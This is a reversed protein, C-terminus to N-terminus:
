KRKFDYSIGLQCGIGSQKHYRMINSNIQRQFTPKIDFIINDTLRVGIEVSSNLHFLFNSYTPIDERIFGYYNQYQNVLFGNNIGLSMGLRIKDRNLVYYGVNIPIELSSGRIESPMDDIIVVLIDVVETGFNKFHLGGQVFMNSNFIKRGNIGFSHFLQSDMNDIALDSTLRESTLSYVGSLEFSNQALVINLQLFIITIIGIAKKMM